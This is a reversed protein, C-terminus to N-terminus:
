LNTYFLNKSNICFNKGDMGKELVSKASVSFNGFTIQKNDHLHEAKELDELDKAKIRCVEVMVDVCKQKSYTSVEQWKHHWCLKTLSKGNADFTIHNHWQGDYVETLIPIERRNFKDQLLDVMFHLDANTMTSGKLAYAVPFSYGVADVNMRDKNTVMFVVIESAKSRLVTHTNTFFHIAESSVITSDYDVDQNSMETLESNPTVSYASKIVDSCKLSGYDGKLSPAKCLFSTKMKINDCVREKLHKINTHLQTPVVLKDGGYLEDATKLM